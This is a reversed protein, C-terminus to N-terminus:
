ESHHFKFIVTWYTIVCHLDNSLFTIPFFSCSKHSICVRQVRAQHLRINLRYSLAIHTIMPICYPRLMLTRTSAQTDVHMCVHTSCHSSPLAQARRSTNSTSLSLLPELCFNQGWEINLMDAPTPLPDRFHSSSLLRRLWLNHLSM